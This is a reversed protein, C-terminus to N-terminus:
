TIEEMIARAAAASDPADVIPRGVVIYDAGAARAEAPTAPNVHNDASWGLPRVGPCVLIKDPANAKWVSGCEASRILGDCQTPNFGAPWDTENDTLPGVALVKHYDGPSKAGMAADLMSPTAHVTLFRVDLEFARRAVAHVTDATDYLKLDLMVDGSSSVIDKIVHMGSIKPLLLARVGLKFFSVGAVMCAHFTERLRDPDDIDLAVILQTM